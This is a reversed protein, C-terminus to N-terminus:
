HREPNKGESPLGQRACARRRLYGKGADGIEQFVESLEHSGGKKLLGGGRTKEGKKKGKLDRNLSTVASKSKEREGERARYDTARLTTGLFSGRGEVRAESSGGRRLGLDKTSTGGDCREGRRRREGRVNKRHQVGESDSAGPFSTEKESRLWTGGKEISSIVDEKFRRRTTRRLL